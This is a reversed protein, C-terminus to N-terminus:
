NLVMRLVDGAYKFNDDKLTFYSSRKESVPIPDDLKLLLHEKDYDNKDPRSPWRFRNTYEVKDVFEFCSVAITGDDNINNIKGPYWRRDYRVAVYDDVSWDSIIALGDRVEGVIDIYTEEDDDQLEDEAEPSASEETEDGASQVTDNTEHQKNSGDVVQPPKM